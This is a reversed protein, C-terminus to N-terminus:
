NNVMEAIVEQAKQLQTDETRDLDVANTRGDPLEVEYDPTIGKEHIDNGNPTFYKAVTIKVASGDSLPIVSQVIGKGFTTTGVLVATDTDQMAGSFIEAASASNGNTLVVMPLQTSHDGDAKYESLVNGDRDKTTVITGGDMLYDCMEVVSDLLGGPNDRMDVIIGDVGQSELEDWAAEFESATNEYFQEVQIYGINNDLVETSVTVNEVVRREVDFELYEGTGSRYIRIHAKTGETGRIMDVVSNLDQDVIETGDVEVIIDEAMLGAEYAPSGPIPRVISVIMDANQTVVAGIGVYEGSTSEMLDAYEDATYYVSYPDDLGEMIGDYLAEEQTDRDIDFYYYSDILSNIEAIKNEVTEDEWMDAPEVTAADSDTEITITEGNNRSEGDDFMSCGCLSFLM